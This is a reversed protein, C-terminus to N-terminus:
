EKEHSLIRFYILYYYDLGIMPFLWTTVSTAVFDDITQTKGVEAAVLCSRGGM